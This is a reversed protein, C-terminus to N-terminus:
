KFIPTISARKWDQPVEGVQCSQELTVSLPRVIADALKRLVPQPRDQKNQSRIYTWNKFTSELKTRRWQCYIMRASFIGEPELFRPKKHSQRTQMTFLLVFFTNFAEAKDMYNTVLKETWNLLPSKYEGRKRKNNIYKHFMKDCTVNRSLNLELEAKDKDKGVANRWSWVVRYEVQTVQGQKWGKTGCMTKHEPATLLESFMWGPRRSPNRNTLVSRWLAQLPHGKFMLWSQKVERRDLVVNWPIRGFKHLPQLDARILDLAMIKNKARSGEGLIGFEGVKHVSYGTSGRIEHGQSSRSQKCTDQGGSLKETGTGQDSTTSSTM